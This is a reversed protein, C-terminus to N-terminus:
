AEAHHQSNELIEKALEDGRHELMSVTQLLEAQRSRHENAWFPRPSVGPEISAPDTMEKYFGELLADIQEYVGAMEALAGAEAPHQLLPLSTKLYAAASRRADTLAMMCFHNVGFRREFDSTEADQYWRSSLLGECWTDLAKYGLRYGKNDDARMSDLKVRLSAYFNDLASPVHAQSDFRMLMYPWHDVYLYGKSVKMDSQFEPDDHLGEFTEGDFYSRCLLTDGNDLYGTIVGWEPAVRLNIAIPLQHKRISDMLQQKEQKREEPTLRNARSATLGYAKHAATSYDYAVLADASSYDWVPTFSIRWCAGSVGMVQEYTTEIGRTSLSLYFAGAWSCDMGQGFGLRGVNEVIYHQLSPQIAFLRTRDPSYHIEEGEACSVAHIGEANLYLLLLYDNGDNDILSPFLEHSVTFHEWQFFEYHQMKKLVSRHILENGYSAYVFELGSKGPTYGKSHVDITLLQEKLAYASYIGAPTEYRVILVKSRDGSLCGPFIHDSVTFSLRNGAVFQNVFHTVDHSDRGDTYVASLVILEQPLLIGDIPHGLVSSLLPLTATEPLSKGTEWKSVAQATVNLQGALQEQSLQKEKRLMAIRKGVKESSIM